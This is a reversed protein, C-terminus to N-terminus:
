LKDILRFVLYVRTVTIESIEVESLTISVYAHFASEPRDDDATVVCGRFLDLIANIQEVVQVPIDFGQKPALNAGIVQNLVGAWRLCSKSRRIGRDDITM